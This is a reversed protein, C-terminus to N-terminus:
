TRGEYPRDVQNSELICWWFNESARYHHWPVALGTWETLYKSLRFLALITASAPEFGPKLKRFFHQHICAQNHVLFVIPDNGVKPVLIPSTAYHFAVSGSMSKLDNPDVTYFSARIKVNGGLKYTYYLTFQM